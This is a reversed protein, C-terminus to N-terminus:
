STKTASWTGSVSTGNPGPAQYTGSMSSNGSTTGSYAVGGVAGFRINNSSDVVGTIALPAGASSLSITGSLNM